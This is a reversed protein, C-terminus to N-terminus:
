VMVCTIISQLSDVVGDERLMNPCERAGYLLTDIFYDGTGNGQMLFYRWGEQGSGDFEVVYKIQSIQWIDELYKKTKYKVGMYQSFHIQTYRM